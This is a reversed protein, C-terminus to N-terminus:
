SGGVKHHINILVAAIVASMACYQSSWYIHFFVYKFFIQKNKVLVAALRAKGKLDVADEQCIVYLYLSFFYFFGEMGNYSLRPKSLCMIFHVEMENSAM